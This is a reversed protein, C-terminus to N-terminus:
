IEARSVLPEIISTCQISFVGVAFKYQITECDVWVTRECRLYQILDPRIMSAEVSPSDLSREFLDVFFSDNPPTVMALAQRTQSAHLHDIFRASHQGPIVLVGFAVAIALVTLLLTRTSFRIFRPTTKMLRSRRGDAPVAWTSDMQLRGQTTSRQVAQNTTM